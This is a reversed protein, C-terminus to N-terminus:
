KNKLEREERRKRVDAMDGIFSAVAKLREPRDSKLVNEGDFAARAIKLAEDAKCQGAIAISLNFVKILDCYKIALLEDRLVNDTADVFFQGPQNVSLVLAKNATDIYRLATTYDM